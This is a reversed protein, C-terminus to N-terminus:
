RKREMGNNQIRYETIQLRNRFPKEIFRKFRFPKSTEPVKPFVFASKLGALNAGLIDTFIQDGVVLADKKTVGIQSLAARFGKGLPKAAECVYPVGLKKAFPKIRADHNNSVLILKIGANKLRGIWPLVGQFPDGACHASLTNDTDLLLATFGNSKLFNEDIDWASEFVAWPKFLM